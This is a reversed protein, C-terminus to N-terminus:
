IEKSVLHLAINGDDDTANIDADEDLLVDLVEDFGSIAGCHLPTFGKENVADVSAGYSILCDICNVFGIAM